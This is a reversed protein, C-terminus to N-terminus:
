RRDRVLAQRLAPELAAQRFPYGHRQAVAPLARQGTLLVGGLEGLLVRLALGPVPLWSPRGLGRGITAALERYPVPEPATVNMPGAIDAREIALCFLGVVDDLHVWSVWQAGSGLPGGLFLRFPLTLAPLAGGGPGLVLGIRLRVVRVGLDAARSAAEEWDAALRALFDTGSPAEETLPDDGRDGYYGVASANALVAPRRTAREMAAVLVATPEIRSARLVQKRQASWWWRAISEGAFNVVAGAGDLEGAWEGLTRGDWLVYRAEPARRAPRSSRSLVVVEHGDSALSRGLASGLWGTGGAIVVKM